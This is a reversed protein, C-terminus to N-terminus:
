LLGVAATKPDDPQWATARSFEQFAAWAKPAYMSAPGGGMLLAVGLAEAMEEDTTGRRAAAKAHFAICGECGTAVAIAVAMAEKIRAPIEGEATAAQSLAVFGAWADPIHHRLERTAPGMESLVEDYHSM